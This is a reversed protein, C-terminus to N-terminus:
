APDMTSDEYLLQTHINRIQMTGHGCKILQYVFHAHLLQEM